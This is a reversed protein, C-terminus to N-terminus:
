VKGFRSECALALADREKLLIHLLDDLQRSRARQPPQILLARFTISPEFARAILGRNEFESAVFAMANTLGVGAGEAVLQCVSAAFQTEVVIKPQSGAGRLATDLQKRATDDPALSVLPVGDLDIPTITELAALPHAEPMVCIGRTAIFPETMVNTTDIEDACLGIDHTGSAILNRVISSNAIEFTVTVGPHRDIFLKIVRPALSLGLAASTAIRLSGTGVARIRAVAQKLRDMGVYTDLIEQYLLHAEPTPILRPGAREFLKLRTVDELRKLSRSIAPQSVGMLEAGKTTSGTRMVANFAEILSLNM